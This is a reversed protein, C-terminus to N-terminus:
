FYLADLKQPSLYRLCPQPNINTLPNEPQYTLPHGALGLIM